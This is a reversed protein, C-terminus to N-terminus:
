KRSIAELVKAYVSKFVKGAVDGEKEPDGGTAAVRPLLALTIEKAAIIMEEAIAMFAGGDITDGGLKVM